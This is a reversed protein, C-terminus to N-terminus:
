GCAVRRDFAHYLALYSRAFAHWSFRRGVRRRAAQGLRTATDPSALLTAIARALAGADGDPVLLGTRGHRVIEPLGGVRTAVVPRAMRAAEVAALGFGEHGLSPVVALTCRNILAPVEDPPVWGAFETRATLGHAAVRRELDTRAPGDGAIVLRAAPWRASLSAMADVLRDVGKRPVLRGLYLIRPPDFPLPAPRLAPAPAGNPIVSAASGIEPVARRALALTAESCAVVRDATRVVRGPVTEPGYGLAPWDHLTLISRAPSTEATELHFLLGPHFAHVHVLDPAFSAKLEAVRRRIRSIRPVDQTALAELFPFRFVPAGAHVGEAPAGCEAPAVITFEVGRRGLTRVLRDVVVEVGGIRPLFSGAWLLVRM